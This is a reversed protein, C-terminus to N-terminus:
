ISIRRRGGGYAVPHAFLREPVVFDGDALVSLNASMVGLEDPFLGGLDAASDIAFSGTFPLEQENAIEVGLSIEGARGISERLSEFSVFFPLLVVTSDLM